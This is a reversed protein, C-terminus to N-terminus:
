SIDCRVFIGHFRLGDRRVSMPVSDAPYYIAPNQPLHCRFHCGGCFWFRFRLSNTLLWIPVKTGPLRNPTRAAGSGSM